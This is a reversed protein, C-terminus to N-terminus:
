GFDFIGYIKFVTLANIRTPFLNIHIHTYTRITVSIIPKYNHITLVLYILLSCRNLRHEKTAFFCSSVIFFSFFGIIRSIIKVIMFAIGNNFHEEWLVMKKGKVNNILLNKDAYLAVGQKYESSTSILKVYGSCKKNIDIYDAIYLTDGQYIVPKGNSKRFLTEFCM